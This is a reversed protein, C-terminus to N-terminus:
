HEGEITTIDEASLGPRELLSAGFGVRTIGLGTHGVQTTKLQTTWM